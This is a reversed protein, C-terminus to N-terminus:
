HLNPRNAFTNIVIEDSTTLQREFQNPSLLVYACSKKKNKNKKKKKKKKKLNYPLAAKPQM